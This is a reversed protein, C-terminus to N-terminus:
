NSLIEDVTRKIGDAVSAFAEDVDPWSNVAKGDKPLAQYKAFPMHQWMCSRLIVPLVVANGEEHLELARELEIDYCYKSSIFDISVLLIIIKSSELNDSINKDWKDGALIKRDNWETVLGMRILPNLHKVFLDKLVEDAHSYSIFIKVPSVEEGYSLGVRGGYGSGSIIQEEDLLQRKMQKYKAEEWGLADRLTQNTILPTQENTLNKLKDLFLDRYTRRVRKAPKKVTKNAVM